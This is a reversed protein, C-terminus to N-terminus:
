VRPQPFVCAVYELMSLETVGIGSGKSSTGEKTKRVHHQTIWIHAWKEFGTFVYLGWCTFIDCIIKLDFMTVTCEM